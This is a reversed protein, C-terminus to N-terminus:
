RRGRSGPLTLAHAASALSDLRTGKARTRLTQALLLQEAIEARRRQQMAAREFLHRAESEKISNDLRVIQRQYIEIARTCNEGADTMANRELDISARFLYLDALQVEHYPDNLYKEFRLAHQFQLQADEYKRQRYYLSGLGFMADFNNASQLSRLFEAEAHEFDGRSLYIFGRIYHAQSVACESSCATPSEFQSTPAFTSGVVDEAERDRGARMLATALGLTAPYFDNRLRLAARYERIALATEEIASYQNALLLHAALSDPALSVIQEYIPLTDAEPDTIATVYALGILALFHGPSNAIARQFAERAAGYNGRNLLDSATEYQIAPLDPDLEAARRIADPNHKSDLLWLVLWNLPDRDGVEIADRIYDRAMEPTASLAKARQILADFASCSQNTQLRSLIETAAQRSVMYEQEWNFQQERALFLLAEARHLGYECKAPAADSAKRFFDAARQYGEPTSLRFAAIGEEYWHEYLPITAKHRVACASTALPVLMMLVRLLHEKERM